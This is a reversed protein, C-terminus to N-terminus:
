LTSDAREYWVQCFDRYETLGSGVGVCHDDVVQWFKEIVPEAGDTHGRVVLVTFDPKRALAQLMRRQGGSVNEWRRKWEAILIHGKREIVFDIDCPLARPNSPFM